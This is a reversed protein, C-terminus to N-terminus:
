PFGGLIIECSVDFDTGAGGHCSDSGINGNVQDVGAQGYLFDDGDGGDLSDNALGGYLVDVGAGGSVTDAGGQGYLADDGDGGDVLDSGVNGFVDDDGDQGFVDDNGGQGFIVDDGSNGFFTDNGSGGYIFDNDPGGGGLDAGSQGYLRDNGDGGSLSDDGPGGYVRDDGDAGGVFDNDAGGYLFDPGLEGSLQDEGDQGYMRDTGDGGFLRDPGAEGYIRDNGGQGSLGDGGAGGCLVDNGDGSFVTDDGDWTHIVEAAATGIIVDDGRTGVRTAQLGACTPRIFEIALGADVAATNHSYELWEDSLFLGNGLGVTASLGSNRGPAAASTVDFYHFQIRDGQEFIRVQFSVGDNTSTNGPCVNEWGIVFVRSPASGFTQYQVAGCSLPDLDDWYPAVFPQSFALQFRLPDNMPEAAEAAGGFHLVGNSYARVVTHDSGYFEFSFGLPLAASLCNDCNSIGADNSPDLNPLNFTPSLGVGTVSDGLVYVNSTGQTEDGPPIAADTATATVVALMALVAGVGAAVVSAASWRIKGVM